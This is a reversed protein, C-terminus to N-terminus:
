KILIDKIGLCLKKIRQYSQYSNKKKDLEIELYGPSAKLHFKPGGPIEVDMDRKDDVGIFISNIKLDSEIYNIVKLTQDKPYSAEFNYSGRSDSDESTISLGKSNRNFDCGSVAFCILALVIIIRKM